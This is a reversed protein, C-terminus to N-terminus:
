LGVIGTGIMRIIFRGNFFSLGKIWILAVLFAPFFGIMAWNETVGLGYIFAMRLLWSERQDIRYELLCRIVYAFILLDLTEGTATTAHEWMTLQFACAFVALVPPVWAVRITLLSYESRERQRQEHTRDHPLLMVSRALLGITLGGCIASFLNLAVPQWLIPLFRVPYTLTFFLPMQFPLVPDWGTVKAVITLSNLSVWRNITVLYILLAGAGLLWPLIAPAHDRHTKQKSQM